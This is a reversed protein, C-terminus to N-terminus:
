GGRLREAEELREVAAELGPADDLRQLPTRDTRDELLDTDPVLHREVEGYWAVQSDGGPQARGVEFGDGHRRIVIDHETVQASLDLTSEDSSDLLWVTM